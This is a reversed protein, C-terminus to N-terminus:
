VGGGRLALVPLQNMHAIARTNSSGFINTWVGARHPRIALLDIAKSKCFTDLAAVVDSGELEAFLVNEEVLENQWRAKWELEEEQLPANNRNIHVFHLRAGTRQLLRRLTQVPGALDESKYNCAFAIQAMGAFHLAAPVMLVPVPLDIFADIIHNDWSLLDNYDAEMGMVVLRAEETAIEEELAEIFQGSVLRTELQTDPFLAQVREKEEQLMREDAESVETLAAMSVGEGAFGSSFSFVRLLIIKVQKGQMFGCAYELANRSSATFNTVVLISSM